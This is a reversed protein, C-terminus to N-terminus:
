EDNWCQCSPDKSGCGRCYQAFLHLRQGDTLQNVAYSALPEPYMVREQLSLDAWEPPRNQDSMMEAVTQRNALPHMVERLRSIEKDATLANWATIAAQKGNGYDDPSVRKGTTGCSSCGIYFQSLENYRQSHRWFEKAEGGCQCPKLETTM